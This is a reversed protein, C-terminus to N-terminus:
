SLRSAPNSTVMVRTFMTLCALGGCASARSHRLEERGLWPRAALYGSSTGVICSFEGRCSAVVSAGGILARLTAGETWLLDLKQRARELSRKSFQVETFARVMTALRMMWSAPRPSRGQEVARFRHCLCRLWRQKM